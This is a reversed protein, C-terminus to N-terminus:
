VPGSEYYLLQVGIKSSGQETSDREVYTVRAIFRRNVAQLGSVRKPIEIMVEIVEGVFLSLSTLFSVGRTSLNLSKARQVDGSFEKLRYFYLPTHLNFRPTIRREPTTM